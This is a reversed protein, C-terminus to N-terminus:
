LTIIEGVEPFAFQTRSESDRLLMQEITLYDNKAPACHIVIAQEPNLMKVFTCMEEFDDHLSFDVDLDVYGLCNMNNGGILIHPESIVRGDYLLNGEELISVGSEELKVLVNWVDYGLVIKISRKDNRNMNLSKLLEVGKSLQNVKCRVRKGEGVLKMAQRSYFQLINEARFYDPRKANTGCMILTDVRLDNPLMLRGALPAEEFSYDGTYLINHGRYSILTMMAGPIHGAPLFTVKYDGFDIENMYSVVNIKDFLTQKALEEAHKNIVMSKKVLDGDMLQYRAFMKTTETMYVPIRPAMAMVNMLYGIHDMHAHSVFIADIQCLSELLNSSLLPRLSPGKTIMGTRTVGCDLLIKRNGLRLFYCSAGIEQAGGLPMFYIDNNM